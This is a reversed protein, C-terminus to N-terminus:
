DWWGVNSSKRTLYYWPDRQVFGCKIYFEDAIGAVRIERSKKICRSITEQVLMTGIRKGQFNKRVYFWDLDTEQVSPNYTSIGVGVMNKTKKDIAGIWLEPDFVSIETWKEISKSTLNGNTSENIIDAIASLVQPNKSNLTVIRFDDNIVRKSNPYGSFSLPRYENIKHSEILAEVVYGYRHHLSLLQFKELEDLPILFPKAKETWYFVLKGNIAAYLCEDNHSDTIQYTVARQIQEEVKWLAFGSVGYPNQKYKSQVVELFDKPNVKSMNSDSTM